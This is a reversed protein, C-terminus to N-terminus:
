EVVPEEATKESEAQANRAELRRRKLEAIEEPTKGRRCSRSNHGPEGCIGCTQPKYGAGRDQLKSMRQKRHEECYCSVVAQAGCIMCLGERQKQKQWERQRTTV